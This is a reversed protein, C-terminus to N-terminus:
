ARVVFGMGTVTQILKKHSNRDIKRRLYAIYVDVVNYNSTQSSNWVNELIESRSIVRGANRVLFELLKFETITLSIKTGERVAYRGEMDILLTDIALHHLDSTVPGSRRIVAGMRAVLESFKFPKILYDDAGSELGNIVNESSGLASLMIVPTRDNKNRMRNCLDFGSLGPLKVDLLVIDFQYKLLMDWGVLGDDALTVTYSAELLGRRILAAVTPDDEILLVKM